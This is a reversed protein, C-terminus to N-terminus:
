WTKSKSKRPLGHYAPAYALRGQQLSFWCVVSKGTHRNKELSIRTYPTYIEGSLEPQPEIERNVMFVLDAEQAIAGSHAIDHLRPEDTKRTHAMLVVVLQQSMALSKLSRCISGLYVSYNADLRVQSADAEPLLFGLHDVVVVKIGLVSAELSKSKVWALNGSEHKLPCYLPQDVGAGMDAFKSSLEPIAVEYSFWLSPVGTQALHASLTQAFTTKGNATPGSVVVLDGDRLGGGIVGDFPTGTPYRDKGGLSALIKAADEIRVIPSDTAQTADRAAIMVEPQANYRKVAEQLLDGPALKSEDFLQRVIEPLTQM